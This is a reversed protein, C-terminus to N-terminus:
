GKKCTTADIRTAPIRVRETRDNAFTLRSLHVECSNGRSEIMAEYDAGAEPVFTFGIRCVYYSYSGIGAASFGPGNNARYFQFNFDRGAPIRTEHFDDRNSPAGPIGLTDRLRKDPSKVSGFLTIYREGSPAMDNTLCKNPLVFPLTQLAGNLQGVRFRATGQEAASPPEYITSCGTAMLAATVALVRIVANNTIMLTPHQQLEPGDNKTYRLTSRLDQPIVQRGRYIRPM